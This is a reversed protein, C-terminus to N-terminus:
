RRCKVKSKKAATTSGTSTSGTAATRGTTLSWAYKPSTPRNFAVVHTSASRIADDSFRRIAKRRRAVAKLM